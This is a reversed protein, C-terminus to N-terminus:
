QPGGERQTRIRFIEGSQTRTMPLTFESNSFLPSGDIVKLLPASQDAQGSIQVASRTLEFGELWVPPALLRTLENLADLDAKSRARFEDIQRIRGRTKATESDLTAVKRAQPELRAIESEVVALYHRNAYASHAGLAGVALLLLAALGITPAYILRSSASRQAVPLLNAGISLWPCSATLATAYSLASVEEEVTGRPKPLM